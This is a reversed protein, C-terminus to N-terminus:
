RNQLAIIVRKAKETIFGNTMISFITGIGIIGGLLYGIVLYLGDYVVRITMYRCHSKKMIWYFIADMPNMGSKFTQMWAFSTGLCIQAFILVLIRILISQNSINLPTFIVSPINICIGLVLVNIISSIGISSRNLCFGMIFLLLNLVQDTTGISVGTTRYFGDLFVTVPDSGLECTVFLSIGIGMLLTASFGRLCDSFVSSFNFHNSM